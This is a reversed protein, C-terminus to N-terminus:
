KILSIKQLFDMNESVKEYPNKNSANLIKDIAYENEKNLKRRYKDQSKKRAIIREEETAYKKVKNIKEERDVLVEINHKEFTDVIKEIQEITLEMEKLYDLVEGYYLINNRQKAYDLLKTLITSLKRNTKEM